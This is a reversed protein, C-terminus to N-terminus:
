QGYRSRFDGQGKRNHPHAECCSQTRKRLGSTNPISEIDFVRIPFM